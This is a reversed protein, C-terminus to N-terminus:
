PLCTDPLEPRLALLASLGCNGQVLDRLTVMDLEHYFADLAREIYRKLRCTNRLPCTNTAEDFCEAFPIEAEFLRFVAGMSVKDAPRALAFGGSRGRMTSVYGDAQLRQVVHAAHNTSCNCVAAVEATKLLRDPNDACVMLIRAALNTRITLRM